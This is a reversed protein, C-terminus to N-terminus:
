ILDGDGLDDIADSLNEGVDEVTEIPDDDTMGVIDFPIKVTNVGAKFIDTLFGM